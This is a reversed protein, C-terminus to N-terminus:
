GDSTEEKEIIIWNEGALFACGQLAICNAVIPKDDDDLTFINFFAINDDGEEKDWDFVEYRKGAEIVPSQHDHESVAYRQM